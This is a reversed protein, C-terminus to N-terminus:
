WARRGWARSLSMPLSFYVQPQNLAREELALFSDLKLCSNSVEWSLFDSLLAFYYSTDQISILYISEESLIYTKIVNGAWWCFQLPNPEPKNRTRNQIAHPESRTGTHNNNLKQNLQFETMRTRRDMRGDTWGDM